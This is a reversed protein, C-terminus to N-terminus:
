SRFARVMERKGPPGPVKEVSFGAAQLARRVTGKATYTVLCAGPVLNRYVHRFLAETWMEPQKEPGFADYYVLHFPAGSLTPCTTWDTHLKHLTFHSSIGEEKGWGARHLADFSARDLGQQEPYRLADTLTADLPLSDIATYTIQIEQSEAELLTLWANLATGFGIELINLQAGYRHIAETLGNRIFVHQSETIAGHVSHYHEDLEPVYLTHSQDGTIRLALKQMMM